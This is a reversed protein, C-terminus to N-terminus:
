CSSCVNILIRYLWGCVNVWCSGFVWVTGWFQEPQCFLRWRCEWRDGERRLSRLGQAKRETERLMVAM